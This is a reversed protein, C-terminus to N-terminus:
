SCLSAEWESVETVEIHQHSPVRGYACLRPRAQQFAASERGQAERIQAHSGGLFDHLDTALVAAANAREQVGTVLVM